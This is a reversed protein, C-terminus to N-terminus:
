GEPVGKWYFTRGSERLQGQGSLRVEQLAAIDIGIKQLELDIIATRRRPRNSADTDLM